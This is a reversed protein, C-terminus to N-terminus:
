NAKIAVTEGANKKGLVRLYVIIDSFDQETMQSLGLEGAFSRMPTGERGSLLVERIYADSASNLFGNLGIGTGSGGLLYGKGTIGHCQECNADYLEKGRSVDGQATWSRDYNRNPVRQFSRLYAIIGDLQADQLFAFAIMNTGPRGKKITDKIFDDSAIALFDQDTVSPALGIKGKGDAQHCGGCMSTFTQKGSAILPNSPTTNRSTNKSASHDMNIYALLHDIQPLLHAQTPMVTTQRKPTYGKPYHRGGKQLRLTLLEKSSGEISPGLPGDHSPDVGHCSYCNARYLQEGIEPNPASATNDSGPTSPSTVPACPNESSTAEQPPSTSATKCAALGIGIIFLLVVKMFHDAKQSRKSDIRM